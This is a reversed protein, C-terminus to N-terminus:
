RMKVDCGIGRGSFRHPEGPLRGGAILSHFRQCHGRRQGISSLDPSPQSSVLILGATYRPAEFFHFELTNNNQEETRLFTLPKIENGFEDDCMNALPPATRM